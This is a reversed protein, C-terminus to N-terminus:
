KHMYSRICPQTHTHTHTHPVLTPPYRTADTRPRCRVQVNILSQTVAPLTQMLIHMFNLRKADLPLAGHTDDGISDQRLKHLIIRVLARATHRKSFSKRQIEASSQSSKNSSTDISRTSFNQVMPLRIQKDNQQSPTDEKLMAFANDSVTQGGTRKSERRICEAMIQHLLWLAAGNEKRRIRQLTHENFRIRLSVLLPKLLKFNHDAAADSRLKSFESPTVQFGLKAFLVAFQYGSAFFTNIDSELVIGAEQQIWTTVAKSATHLWLLAKHHSSESM